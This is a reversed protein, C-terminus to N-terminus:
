FKQFLLDDLSNQFCFAWTHRNHSQSWSWQQPALTREIWPSYWHAWASDKMGVPLSSLASRFDHYCSRAGVGFTEPWIRRTRCLSGLARQAWWHCALRNYRNNCYLWVSYIIGTQDYVSVPRPYGARTQKYFTTDECNRKGEGSGFLFAVSICAQSIVCFRQSECLLSFVVSDCHCTHVMFLVPYLCSKALM